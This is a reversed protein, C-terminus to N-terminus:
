SQPRAGSFVKGHVDTASVLAGGFSGDRTPNIAVTIKDGAAFSGPHWGARYMVLPSNMEISWENVSGPAGVLLQIFCHPNTWQVERVTGQLTLTRKADFM